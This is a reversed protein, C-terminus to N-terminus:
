EFMILLKDKMRSMFAGESIEDLTVLPEKVLEKGDMLVTIYGVKTGKPLPAFLPGDLDVITEISDRKGRPVTVFVSEAAGLAVTPM